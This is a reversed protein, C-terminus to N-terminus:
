FMETGSGFVKLLEGVITWSQVMRPEPESATLFERSTEILRSHDGELSQPASVHSNDRLLDWGDRACHPTGIEGTRSSEGIVTRHQTAPAIGCREGNPKNSNEHARAAPVGLVDGLELTEHGLDLTRLGKGRFRPFRDIPQDGSLGCRTPPVIGQLLHPALRRDFADCARHLRLFADRSHAVDRRPLPTISAAARMTRRRHLFLRPELM